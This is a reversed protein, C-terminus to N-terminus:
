VASDTPNGDASRFIFFFASEAISMDLAEGCLSARLLIFSPEFDVNVVLTTFMCILIIIICKVNQM